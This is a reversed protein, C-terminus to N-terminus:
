EIYLFDKWQEATQYLHISEDPVHLTCKWKDIDQLAQAGCYPPTLAETTFNKLGTCDSFANGKIRNISKGVIFSEMASCGSFAFEGITTVNDGLQVDNLNSCNKFEGNYVTTCKGIMVVKRLNVASEFLNSYDEGLWVSCVNRHLTISRLKSDNTFLPHDYVKLEESEDNAYVIFEEISSCGSFAKEGIRTVKHGIEIKKILACDYFANDDIAELNDGLDVSQMNSCYMFLGENITTTANTSIHKLNLNNAFAYKGYELIRLTIGKNTVESELSLTESNNYDCGIAICTREAPSKLTYLIGNVWFLSTLESIECVETWLLDRYKESVYNIKGGLRYTVGKPQTNPLWIIKSVKNQTYNSLITYHSTQGNSTVTGEKYPGDSTNWAAESVKKVNAGVILQQLDSTFAYSDIVNMNDLTVVSLASIMARYGIGTVRYTKGEIVVENPIILHNVIEPKSMGAVYCEDTADASLKYRLEGIEFGDITPDDSEDGDPNASEETDDPNPMEPEYSDKECSALILLMAVITPIFISGKNFSRM